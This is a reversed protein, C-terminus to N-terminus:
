PLLFPDERFCHSSQHLSSSVCASMILQSSLYFHFKCGSGLGLVVLQFQSDLCLRAWPPNGQCSLACPTTASGCGVAACVQM